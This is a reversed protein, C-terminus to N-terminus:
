SNVSEDKSKHPEDQAYAEEAQHSRERDSMNIAQAVVTPTSQALRVRINQHGVVDQEPSAESPSDSDDEVM